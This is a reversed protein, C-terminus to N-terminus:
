RGSPPTTSMRLHGQADRYLYTPRGTRPTRRYRALSYGEGRYRSMLERLSIRPEGDLDTIVGGEIRIDRTGEAARLRADRITLTDSM